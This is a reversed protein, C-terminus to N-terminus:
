RKLRMTVGRVNGDVRVVKKKYLYGGPATDRVWLVYRGRAVHRLVFKGKTGTRAMRRVGATVTLGPVGKGRHLVRGQVTFGKELRLDLTVPEGATVDISQRVPAFKDGKRQRGEVTYRGAPVGTATFRGRAGTFVIDVFGGHPDTITVVGKKVPKGNPRLLQGSVETFTTPVELEGAFIKEDAAVTLPESMVNTGSLVVQWEGPAVKVTYRTLGGDTPRRLASKWKGNKLNYVRVSVHGDADEVGKVDVVIKGRVPARLHIKGARVTKGAVARVTTRGWLKPLHRDDVAIVNVKGTALHVATFRGRADTRIEGHSGARRTNFVEVEAGKVPRGAADVVKGKVTGSPILALDLTASTGKRVTVRKAQAAHVTNGSYTWFASIRFTYAHAMYRGPPVAATFRGHKDTKVVLKTKKSELFVSLKSVPKGRFTVTGSITGKASKAPASQTRTNQAPASQSTNEVPTAAAPPAALLTAVLALAATAVAFPHKVARMAEGPALTRESSTATGSSM